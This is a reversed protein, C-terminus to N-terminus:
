HKQPRMSTHYSRLVGFCLLSSILAVSLWIYTNDSSSDHIDNATTRDSITTDNVASEEQSVIMDEEDDSLTLLSHHETQKEIGSEILTITYYPLSPDDDFHIEKIEAIQYLGDKARYLVKRGKAHLSLSM